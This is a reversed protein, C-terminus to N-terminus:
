TIKLTRSYKFLSFGYKKMFVKIDPFGLKVINFIRGTGTKHQDFNM